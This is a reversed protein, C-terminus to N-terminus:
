FYVTVTTEDSICDTTRCNVNLSDFTSHTIDTARARVRALRAENIIEYTEYGIGIEYFSQDIKISYNSETYAGVTGLLLPLAFASMTDEYILETGNNQLIVELLQVKGNNMVTIIANLTKNIETVQSSYSTVSDRVVGISDSILTFRDLEDQYETSGDDILEQLANITDTLQRISDVATTKITSLQKISDKNKNVSDTLQSISDQNIFVLRVTPDYVLPEGCDACPDCGVAILVWVTLIILFRNIM